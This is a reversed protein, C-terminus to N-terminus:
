RLEVTKDGVTIREARLESAETKHAYGEVAVTMGPKVADAPLGRSVMRSPPSLVVTWTKGPTALRLTGHPNDIRAEEVTGALKLLKSSDYGGWGHHAAAVGPLALALALTLVPRM